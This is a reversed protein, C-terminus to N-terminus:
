ARTFNRGAVATSFTVKTIVFTKRQYRLILVKQLLTLRKPRVLEKTAPVAVANKQSKGKKRRKTPKAAYEKTCNVAPKEVGKTSLKPKKAVACLLSRPYCFKQMAKTESVQETTKRILLM